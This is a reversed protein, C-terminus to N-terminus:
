PTMDELLVLLVILVEQGGLTLKLSLEHAQCHYAKRDDVTVLVDGSKPIMHPKKPDVVLLILGENELSVAIVEFTV